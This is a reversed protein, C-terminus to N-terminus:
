SLDFHITERHLMQSRIVPTVMAGGPIPRGDLGKVVVDDVANIIGNRIAEILVSKDIDGDDLMPQIWSLHVDFRM